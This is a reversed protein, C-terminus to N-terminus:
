GLMLGALAADHDDHALPLAARQREHDAALIGLALTLPNSDRERCQPRVVIM